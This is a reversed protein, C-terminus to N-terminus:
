NNMVARTSSYNWMHGNILRNVDSETFNFIDQWLELNVASIMYATYRLADHRNKAM